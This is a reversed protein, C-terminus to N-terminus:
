CAPTPAPLLFREQQLTLKYGIGRINLIKIRNDESLKTIVLMMGYTM